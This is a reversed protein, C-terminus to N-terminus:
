LQAGEFGDSVPNKLLRQLRARVCFLAFNLTEGALAEV